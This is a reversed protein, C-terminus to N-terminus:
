SFHKLLINELDSLNSKKTMVGQAFRAQGGGRGNLVPAIVEKLIKDAPMNKQLVHSVSVILPYKKEAAAKQGEGLTIIIAPEIQSKLQDTIEALMKRDDIPLYAALMYGKVDKIKIQKKQKILQKIDFSKSLHEIQTKLTQVEKQKKKLLSLFPNDTTVEKSVPTKLFKGFEIMQEALYYPKKIQSDKSGPKLKKNQKSEKSSVNQKLQNQLAQIEKNQEEWWTIFPNGLSTDNSSINLFNRLNKNQDELNKLWKIASDSTYAVIRRVGSQVGTESIIKFPQIDSTNEVHIGGCLEVSGGMSIVRVQESYNEGALSLAGQSIAEKYTQISAGVKNQAQISQNVNEEIDQLQKETLPNPYSFDFRLREPEVLSGKQKVTKGLLERLAHYLLHTASHNAAICRRHKENVAIECNQGKKIEGSTVKIKHSIFKAKEQCDLVLAEGTETKLTGRDGIPGGGEPYFCTKDLIVWAEEDMKLYEALESSIAATYLIGNDSKEVDPPFPEMPICILLIEAQEKNKEYCTKKIEINMIKTYEFSANKADTDREEKLHRQLNIERENYKKLITLNTEEVSFGKEQAILRTLDPPFGYTSYLNWTTKADITKNDLTEMKQLLIKRGKKLNDNFRQDEEKITSQILTKNQKLEPYFEQMWEITTAAGIGLLNKEKSLKYSYFLARRMIRRLVYSAGENGPLVGDCVLFSIARSHDAIVRFAIQEETMQPNEFHYKKGSTNEISEIIGKFLDTAYNNTKNQLIMSIRELGMGTDICPKPLPTRGKADENFSMFVLNWVEILDSEKPNKNSLDPNFYIESCPGCPGISGMRWFNSQEGLFLIKREEIHQDKKWIKASEKDEKFVSVWLREKPLDLERTLFEMAYHIAERKSYSGFCFHGMMEFFTHHHLSRGVEELDNHKGGARLCKQISCVQPHPSKELGLFFNKFQNMGANVFLLSPDKQPILSSSKIWKHDNEGFYSKFKNRISRSEM